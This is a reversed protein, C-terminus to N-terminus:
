LADLTTSRNQIGILGVSLARTLGRLSPDGVLTGILPGAQGLGQTLRTVDATPRFLLGNRSFFEGSSLDEVSRFTDSQAALRQTLASSAQSALEATPADIVVLTTGFHGPFAKGFDLERKRWDLDPSILKNIDTNIAFHTAAYGVSVVAACGWVVIVVLPFRACFRVISTIISGLM